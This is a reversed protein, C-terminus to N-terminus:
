KPASRNSLRKSRRTLLLSFEESTMVGIDELEKKYYIFVDNHTVKGKANSKITTKQRGLEWYTYCKEQKEIEKQRKGRKVDRADIRTVIENTGRVTDLVEQLKDESVTDQTPSKHQITDTLQDSPPRISGNNKLLYREYDRVNVQFEEPPILAYCIACYWCEGEEDEFSNDTEVTIEHTCGRHRCAKDPCPYTHLSTTM